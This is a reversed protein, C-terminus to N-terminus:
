GGTARVVRQEARLDDVARRGAAAILEEQAATAVPQDGEGSGLVGLRGAEVTEAHIKARVTRPDDASLASDSAGGVVVSPFDREVNSLLDLRQAEHLEAIVQAGGNLSTLDQTADAPFPGGGAWAHTTIALVAAAASFHIRRM